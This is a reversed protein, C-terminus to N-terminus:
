TRRVFRLEQAIADPNLGRLPRFKLPGDAEITYNQMIIAFYLFVELVALSEGPCARKGISFVWVKDTNVLKGDENIFREPNFEYPKEFVEPDYHVSDVNFVVQEDANM